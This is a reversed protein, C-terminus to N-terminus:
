ALRRFSWWTDLRAPWEAAYGHEVCQGATAHAHIMTRRGNHTAMIALHMPDASGWSFWGIDGDQLPRDLPTLFRELVERIARPNPLRGYVPVDAAKMRLLGTATGVAIVLGGCDVGHGRLQQRHAYPTGLWSRAEAVVAARLDSKRSM